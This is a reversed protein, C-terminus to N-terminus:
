GINVQFRTLATVFFVTYFNTKEAISKYRKQIKISLTEKHIRDTKDIHRQLRNTDNM